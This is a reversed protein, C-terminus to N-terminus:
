YPYKMAPGKFDSLYVTDSPDHTYLAWLFERSLRAGDSDSSSAYKFKGDRMYLEGPSFIFAQERTVIGIDGGGDYDDARWWVHNDINVIYGQSHASGVLFAKNKASKVGSNDNEQTEQEDSIITLATVEIHQNPLLTLKISDLNVQKGLKDYYTKSTSNYTIEGINVFKSQNDQIPLVEQKTCSSLCITLLLLLSGLTKKMIHLIFNGINDFIVFFTKLLFKVHLFMVNVEYNYKNQM